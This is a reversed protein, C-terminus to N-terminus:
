DKKSNAYEEKAKEVEKKSAIAGYYRYKRNTPDVEISIRGEKYLRSTANYLNTKSMQLDELMNETPFVWGKKKALYNFVKDKNTTKM